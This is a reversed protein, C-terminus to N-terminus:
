VDLTNRVKIIFHAPACMRRLKGISINKLLNNDDENSFHQFINGNLHGDYFHPGTIHEGLIGGWFM